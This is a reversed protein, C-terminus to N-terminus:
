SMSLVLASTFIVFLLLGAYLTSEGGFLKDLLTQVVTDGPM